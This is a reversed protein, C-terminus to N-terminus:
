TRESIARLFEEYNAKEAQIVDRARFTCPFPTTPYVLGMEEAARRLTSTDFLRYHRRFLREGATHELFTVSLHPSSGAAVWKTDPPLVERLWDHFLAFGRGVWRDRARDSEEWLGNKTLADRVHDSLFNSEIDWDTGLVQHFERGCPALAYLELVDHHRPSQVDFLGTTQVNLWIRYETM